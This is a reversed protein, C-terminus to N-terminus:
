VIQRGVFGEATGEWAVKMSNFPEMDCLPPLMTDKPEFQFTHPPLFSVKPPTKGLLEQFHRACQGCPYLESVLSLFTRTKEQQDESPEEPYRAAMTHLLTWTSRGLIERVTKNGLQSNFVQLDDGPSSDSTARPDPAPALSRLQSLTVGLYMMGLLILLILLRTSTMQFLSTVAASTIAPGPQSLPSSSSSSSSPLLSKYMPLFFFLPFFLLFCCHFEPSQLSQLQRRGMIM